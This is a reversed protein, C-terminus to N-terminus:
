GAVKGFQERLSKRDPKTQELQWANDLYEQGKETQSMRHIFADRRFLLYDLYDLEQVDIVSIGVYRAVM